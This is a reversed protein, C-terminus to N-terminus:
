VKCGSNVARFTPRCVSGLSRFMDHGSASPGLPYCSPQDNEVALINLDTRSPCMAMHWRHVFGKVRHLRGHVSWAFSELTAADDLVAIGYCPNQDATIGRIEDIFRATIVGSGVAGPFLLFFNKTFRLNPHAFIGIGPVFCDVNVFVYVTDKRAIGRKDM